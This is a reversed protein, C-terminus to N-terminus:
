TPGLGTKAFVRNETNFLCQLFSTKKKRVSTHSSSPTAPTTANRCLTAVRFFFPLTKKSHEKGINTGLRDQYVSRKKYIFPEFLGNESVTCRHGANPLGAGCTDPAMGGHLGWHEPKLTASMSEWSSM